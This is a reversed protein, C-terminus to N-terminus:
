PSQTPFSEGEAQEATPLSAHFQVWLWNDGRKELVGSLRAPLSMKEGGAEARIVCDAAVWAVSGAASVSTWGIELSASESQSWDRQAQAKIEALGVRKEDAGTGIVMVDPDSAWLGILGNMDRRAYAEAFRNLSALVAAETQADAKM